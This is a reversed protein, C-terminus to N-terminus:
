IGDPLAKFIGKEFIQSKKYLEDEPSRPQLHIHLHNVKTASEPLFPRCHQRVDCGPYKELLKEQFEIVTDLLELREPDNLGSLREVHRKPIVLTHGEMLSPNSLIVFVLKGKKLIREDGINCFPCQM